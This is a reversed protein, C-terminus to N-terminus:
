GAAQSIRRFHTPTAPIPTKSRRRVQRPLPSQTRSRAPLIPLSSPDLPATPRSDVPPFSATSTLILWDIRGGPICSRFSASTPVWTALIAPSRKYPRPVPASCSTMSSMRTRCRWHPSNTLCLLSLTSMPSPCFNVRGRWLGSTALAARVSQAIVIVAVTIPPPAIAVARAHTAIGASHPPVAVRLRACYKGIPGM